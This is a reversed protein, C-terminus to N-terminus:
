VELLVAKLSLFVVRVEPRPAVENNLASNYSHLVISEGALLTANFEVTLSKEAVTCSSLTPGTSAGSGGYVLNFAGAALREGVPLKSRPHIGGETPTGAAAACAPDCIEPKGKTGAKCTDSSRNAIYAGKDCCEWQSAFGSFCPGSAPGWADELDGAQAFFSNPIALNPLM